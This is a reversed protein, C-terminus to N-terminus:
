EAVRTKSDQIGACPQPLHPVTALDGDHAVGETNRASAMWVPQDHELVAIAREARVVLFAGAPTASQCGGGTPTRESQRLDRAGETVSRIQLVRVPVVIRVHDGCVIRARERQEARLLRRTGGFHV